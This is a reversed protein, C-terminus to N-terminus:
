LPQCGLAATMRRVDHLVPDDADTAHAHVVLSEIGLRRYHDLMFPLVDVFVGVMTVLHMRM